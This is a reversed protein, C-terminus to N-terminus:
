NILFHLIDFGSIASTSQIKFCTHKRALANKKQKKKKTKTIITTTIEPVQAKKLHKHIPVYIKPLLYM